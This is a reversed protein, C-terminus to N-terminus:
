VHSDRSGRPGAGAVVAPALLSVFAERYKPAEYLWAPTADPPFLESERFRFALRGHRIAVGPNCTGDALALLTSVDTTVVCDAAEGDDDDIETSRFDIRWATQKDAVVVKMVGDPAALHGAMDESGLREKMRSIIEEFVPANDSEAGHADGMAVSEREEDRLQSTFDSVDGRGAREMEETQSSREDSFLIAKESDIIANISEYGLAASLEAQRERFEQPIMNLPLVRGRGVSLPDFDSTYWIKYDGRESRRTQSFIDARSLENIQLGLFRFLDALVEEPNTVMDEYRLCHCRDPHAEEFKSIQSVEDQWLMACALPLNEPMRSVYRALGFAGYSYPSAELLSAIVDSCERYLCIFQAEPFVDLLLAAHHVTGLSKEAWRSKGQRRAYDGMLKDGLLHAVHIFQERDGTHADESGREDYFARRLM